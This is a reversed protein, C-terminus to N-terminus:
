HPGPKIYCKHKHLRDIKIVNSSFDPLFCDYSFLKQFKTYPFHTTKALQKWVASALVESSLMPLLAIAFFMLM